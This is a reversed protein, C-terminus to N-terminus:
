LAKLAVALRDVEELTNYHAAGVRILGGKDELGLRQTISLAYFNGDWVYFGMDGLKRAADAPNHGELTFSFTPVRQDIRNADQIGYM